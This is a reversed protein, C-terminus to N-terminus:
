KYLFFSFPEKIYGNAKEVKTINRLHYIKGEYDKAQNDCIYAYDYKGEEKWGMFIYTHTPIGKKNLVEDTTFCIAGPKLKKYDREKKWGEKKFIDLLQSTNCINDDIKKGNMRLVEALFYVCTNASDGGNLAAGRNYAKMRDEKNMMSEYLRKELGYDSTNDGKNICQVLYILGAAFFVTFCLLMFRRVRRKGKKKGKVNGTYVGEM